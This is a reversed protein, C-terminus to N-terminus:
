IVLIWRSELSATVPEPLAPGVFTASDRRVIPTRHPEPLPPFFACCLALGACTALALGLHPPCCSDPPSGATRRANARPEQGWGEHGEGEATRMMTAKRMRARRRGVSVEAAVM